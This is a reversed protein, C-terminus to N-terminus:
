RKAMLPQNRILARPKGRSVLIDQILPLPQLQNQKPKRRKRGPLKQKPLNQRLLNQQLLNTRLFILKLSMKKKKKKKTKGTMGNTGTKMAQPKPPSLYPLLENQVLLQSKMSRQTQLDQPIRSTARLKSVARPNQKSCIKSITWHRRCTRFNFQISPKCTRSNATM